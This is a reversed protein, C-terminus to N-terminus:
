SYNNTLLFNKNFSSALHHFPMGPFQQITSAAMAAMQHNQAVTAALADPPMMGAMGNMQQTLTSNTDSTGNPRSEKKHKM